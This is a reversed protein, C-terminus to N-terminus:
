NIATYNLCKSPFSALNNNGFRFPLRIQRYSHELIDKYYHTFLNNKLKTSGIDVKPKTLPIQICKNAQDFGKLFDRLSDVLSSLQKKSINVKEKLIYCQQKNLDCFQILKIAFSKKNSGKSVRVIRHHSQSIDFINYNFYSDVDTKFLFEPIEGNM